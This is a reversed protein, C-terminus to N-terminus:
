MKILHGFIDKKIRLETENFEDIPPQIGLREIDFGNDKFFDIRIPDNTMLKLSNINYFDKIITGIDDYHRNEYKLELFDFAQTLLELNHAQGEAYVRFHNELTLGKGNQDYGHILLGRGTEFLLRKAEKFQYDCDCWRSQFLDGLVCASQIRILTEKSNNPDIDGVEVVLYRSGSFDFYRLVCEKVQNDWNLPLKVPGIQKYKTTTM